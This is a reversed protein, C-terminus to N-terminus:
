SGNQLRIRDRWAQTTDEVDHGYVQRFADDASGTTAMARLLDNLGGQGRLAMLYETLSLAGMYYGWVGGFRGNALSTMQAPTLMSATRKGEMYQAVGEHLVHPAVGHGMDHIFAHTLEHLLVGEMEPTLSSTLGGVPIRIRGDTQDFEGGSWAPAGSANYYGQRTFLIVAVTAAPQHDFTGTLTAYHRELVRLIERGVEEHVDGDYRVNFHSLHQERMGQEDALGKEIRALLSRATDTPRADIAHRLAEAAEKSRDQRYLAYGLGELLESNRPAAVLAERAVTEAGAWDGDEVLLHMLYLRAAVSPDLAVARRVSAIAAPLKHTDRDQEASSFLESVLLDRTAPELPHRARLGEAAAVDAPSVTAHLALRHSLDEALALDADPTAGV